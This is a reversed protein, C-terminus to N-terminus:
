FVFTLIQVMGVQVSCLSMESVKVDGDGSQSIRKESGDIGTSYSGSRDKSWITSSNSFSGNGFLRQSPGSPSTPTPARREEDGCVVVYWALKEDKCLQDRLERIAIWSDESLGLRGRAEDIDAGLKIEEVTDAVYAYPQGKVSLDTPDHQEIFRLSPLSEMMSPYLEWFNSLMCKTTEPASHTPLWDAPNKALLSLNQLEGILWEAAADDLNQLIIHIRIAARPWRFGHVLYVPM